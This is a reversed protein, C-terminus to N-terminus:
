KMSAEVEALVTRWNNTRRLRGQRLYPNQGKGVVSDDVGLAEVFIFRDRNVASISRATM